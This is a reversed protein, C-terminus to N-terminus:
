ARVPPPWLARVTEVVMTVLKQYLADGEEASASAPDGAYAEPMGMARFDAHGSHLARVIDVKVPALSRHERVRGAAAALVLSTEYSGAHASGRMFEANLTSAWKRETQDPLAVRAGTRAAVEACAAKLTRLHGPELHGNVLCVREFGQRILSACVETLLGTAAPESVTITGAFGAACDTVAYALSPAILVSWGNAELASAARAALEEALIVDTDLPLHPGHAETSGVPVLVIPEHARERDAEVWTLEALRRM